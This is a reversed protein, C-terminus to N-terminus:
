WPNGSACHKSGVNDLYSNGIKIVNARFVTSTAIWPVHEPGTRFLWNDSFNQSTLELFPGFDIKSYSNYQLNNSLFLKQSIKVNPESVSNLVFAFGACENWCGTNSIAVKLVVLMRDAIWLCKSDTENKRQIPKQCLSEAWQNEHTKCLSYTLYWYHCLSIPQVTKKPLYLQFIDENM